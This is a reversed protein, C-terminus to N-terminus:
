SVSLQNGEPDVERSIKLSDSNALDMNANSVALIITEQRCVFDMIMDKIRAEIDHPQDGVAVKTLGPLDVLTIDVVKYSYITLYIPENSIGSM